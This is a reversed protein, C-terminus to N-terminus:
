TFFCVSGLIKKKKYDWWVCSVLGMRSSCWCCKQTPGSDPTWIVGARPRPPAWPANSHFLPLIQFITDWLEMIGLPQGAESCLLCLQQWLCSFDHHRETPNSKWGFYFFPPHSVCLCLTTHGYPMSLLKPETIVSSYECPCHSVVESFPSSLSLLPPTSLLVTRSLSLPPTNNSLTIENFMLLSCSLLFIVCLPVSYILTISSRALLPWCEDAYHMFYPATM